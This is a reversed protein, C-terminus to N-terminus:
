DFMTGSYVSMQTDGAQHITNAGAGAAGAFVGSGVIRYTADIELPNGYSVFFNGPAFHSGGPLCYTGAEDFLLTSGDQLAITASGPVALAFGCGPV